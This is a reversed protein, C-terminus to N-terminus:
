DDGTSLRSLTISSGKVTVVARKRSPPSVLGASNQKAAQDPRFWQLPALHYQGTTQPGAIYLITITFRLNRWYRGYPCTFLQLLPLHRGVLLFCRVHLKDFVVIQCNSYKKSVETSLYYNIRNTISFDLIHSPLISDHTIMM